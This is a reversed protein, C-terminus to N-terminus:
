AAQSPEGSNRVAALIVESGAQIESSSCGGFFRECAAKGPLGNASREIESRGPWYGNRHRFSLCAQAAPVAKWPKSMGLTRPVMGSELLYASFSGFEREISSNPPLGLPVRVSTRSCEDATPPRGFHDRYRQAAGIMQLREWRAGPAPPPTYRADEDVGELAPAVVPQAGEFPADGAMRALGEISDIATVRKVIKARQHLAAKYLLGMWTEPRRAFLEPSREFLELLAAQVAEEALHRDGRFRDALMRTVRRLHGRYDFRQFAQKIDDPVSAPEPRVVDFGVAVDFEKGSAAKLAAVMTRAM